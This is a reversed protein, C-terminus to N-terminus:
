NRGRTNEHTHARARANTRGDVDQAHTGTRRKGGHAKNERELSRVRRITKALWLNPRGVPPRAVRRSRARSAPCEESGRAPARVAAQMIWVSRSGVMCSPEGPRTHDGEFLSGAESLDFLDAEWAQSWFCADEASQSVCHRQEVVRLTSAPLSPHLLQPPLEILQSQPRSVWLQCESM